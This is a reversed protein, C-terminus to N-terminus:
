DHTHGFVRGHANLMIYGNVGYMRADLGTPNKFGKVGTDGLKSVKTEISVEKTM